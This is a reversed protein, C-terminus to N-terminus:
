QKALTRFRQLTIKRYGRAKAHHSLPRHHWTAHVGGGKLFVCKVNPIYEFDLEFIYGMSKALASIEKFELENNVAIKIARM